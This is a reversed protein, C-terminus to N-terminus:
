SYSGGHDSIVAKAKATGQKIKDAKQRHLDIFAIFKTKDSMLRVYEEELTKLPPQRDARGRYSRM